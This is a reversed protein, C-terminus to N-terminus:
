KKKKAQKIAEEELKRLRYRKYTLVSDSILRNIGVILSVIGVSWGVIDSVMIGDLFLKGNLQTLMGADILGPFFKYWITDTPIASGLNSITEAVQNGEKSVTVSSYTIGVTSIGYTTTARNLM